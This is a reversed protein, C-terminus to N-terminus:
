LCVTGLRIIGLCARVFLALSGCVVILGSDECQYDGSRPVVTTDCMEFECECVFCPM